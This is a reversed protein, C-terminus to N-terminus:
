AHTGDTPQIVRDANETARATAKRTTHADHELPELRAPPVDDVLLRLAHEKM